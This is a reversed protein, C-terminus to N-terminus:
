FNTFSIKNSEFTDNDGYVKVTFKKSLNNINYVHQIDIDFNYKGYPSITYTNLQVLVDKSTNFIIYNTKISICIERIIFKSNTHNIITARLYLPGSGFISQTWTKYTEITIKPMLKIKNIDIYFCSAM